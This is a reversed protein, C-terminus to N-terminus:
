WLKLNRGNSAIIFFCTTIHVVWWFTRIIAAIDAERDNDSIKGGLSRCWIRWIKNMKKYFHMIIMKKFFDIFFNFLTLIQM